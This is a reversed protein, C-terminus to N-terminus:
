RMFYQTWTLEIKKEEAVAKSETAVQRRIRLQINKNVHNRVNQNLYTHFGRRFLHSAM